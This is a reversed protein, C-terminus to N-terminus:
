YRCFIVCDFSATGPVTVFKKCNALIGAGTAMLDDHYQERRRNGDRFYAAVRDSASQYNWRDEEFHYILSHLSKDLQILSELERHVPHVFGTPDTLSPISVEAGHAELIKMTISSLSRQTGLVMVTKSKPLSPMTSIDKPTHTARHELRSAFYFQQPNLNSKNSYFAIEDETMTAWLQRVFEAKLEKDQLLHDHVRRCNFLKARCYLPFYADYKGSEILLQKLLPYRDLMVFHQSGKTNTISGERVTRYHYLPEDLIAISGANLIIRWNALNEEHIGPDSYVAGSTFLEAKVMKSWLAPFQFILDSHHEPLTRIAPLSANFRSTGEVRNEERNYFARFYVADAGTEQMRNWAKECLDLELWDDADAHCVCEGRIYPIANNRTTGVGQNEQNIIEIRSDRAAYEELIALSGDTSGDNICIIQIDKLTQNVVSGLCRRLYPEANYVPIIMSIKPITVNETTM